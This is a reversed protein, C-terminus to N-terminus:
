FGVACRASKAAAFALPPSRGGVLVFRVFSIAISSRASPTRNRLNPLLEAPKRMGHPRSNGAQAFGTALHRAALIGIIPGHVPENGEFCSALPSPGHRASL